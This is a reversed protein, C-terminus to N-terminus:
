IFCPCKPVIPFLCKRNECPKKMHPRKCFICKNCRIALCGTCKKCRNKRKGGILVGGIVSGCRCVKDRNAIARQIELDEKLEEPVVVESLSALYNIVFQPTEIPYRHEEKVEVHPLCLKVKKLNYETTAGFSDWLNQKFDDFAKVPGKYILGGLKDNAKEVMDMGELISAVMNLRRSENVVFNEAIIPLFVRSAKRGTMLAQLVEKCINWLSDDISNGTSELMSTLVRIIEEEDRGLWIFKSHTNKVRRVIRFGCFINMIATLRSRGVTNNERLEYELTELDIEQEPQLTDMSLITKTMEILAPGEELVCRKVKEFYIPSPMSKQRKSPREVMEYYIPKGYYSNEKVCSRSSKRYSNPDTKPTFLQSRPRKPTVPTMSTSLALASKKLNNLFMAKQEAINKQRIKEYDSLEEDEPIQLEQFSERSSISDTHSNQIEMLVSEWLLNKLWVQTGELENQICNKETLTGDSEKENDKGSEKDSNHKKRHPIQSQYVKNFFIQLECADQHLISNPDNYTKCNDFMLTVDSKLKKLTEYSNSKIRKKITEMDMPNKIVTYYDPYTEKCPKVMFPGIIDREPDIESRKILTNYLYLMKETLRDNSIKNTPNTSTDDITGEKIIADENKLIMKLIDCFKIHEKMEHVQLFSKKCYVCAFPQHKQIFNNPEEKEKESHNKHHPIQSQYVKNFFIQLKCADQHLISKPDNYAKCNDFMLTVDSKFKELTKYSSSKIRKKITEMDIPNKIVSYYDPYTEKCPKVMFPGIIDREADTESQKILTHYFYLMKETLGANNIKNTNAFPQQKQTFNNPDENEKESQKAKKSFKIMCPTKPKEKVIDIESQFDSARKLKSLYKEQETTLSIRELKIVATKLDPVLCDTVGKSASKIKSCYEQQETTLSIRRLKIVVPKLDTMLCEELKVISGM